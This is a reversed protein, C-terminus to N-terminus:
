FVECIIEGGLGKKRAEKNTMLGGSTSVVLCGLGSKVAKIKHKPLYIRQGPKSIKKIQKLVSDGNSDYKLEIKLYKKVGRGVKAVSRLYGLDVLIYAVEYKFNSAPISIFSKKVALANKIQAIMSSIPDM